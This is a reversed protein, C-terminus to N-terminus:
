NEPEKKSSVDAALHKMKMRWKIEAISLRDESQLRRIEQANEIMQPSYLAYGSATTKAVELLGENTWFRITAKTERVAEALEGIKLLKTAKDKGM